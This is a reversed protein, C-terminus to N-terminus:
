KMNKINMHLEDLNKLGEIRPNKYVPEMEISRYRLEPGKGGHNLDKLLFERKRYSQSNLM